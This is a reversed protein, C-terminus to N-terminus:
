KEVGDTEIELERGSRPRDEFQFGTCVRAGRVRLSLEELGSAGALAEGDDAFGSETLVEAAALVLALLDVRSGDGDVVVFEAAMRLVTRGPASFAQLERRLCM